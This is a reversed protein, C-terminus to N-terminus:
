LKLCIDVMVIIERSSKACKLRRLLTNGYDKRSRPPFKWAIRTTGPRQYM